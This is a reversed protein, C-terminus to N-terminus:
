YFIHYNVYVIKLIIQSIAYRLYKKNKLTNVFTCFVNEESSRTSRDNVNKVGMFSYM